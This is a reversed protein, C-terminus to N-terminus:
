VKVNASLSEAIDIIATDKIENSPKDHNYFEELKREIAAYDGRGRAVKEKYEELSRCYYHNLQIKQVSVPAFADEVVEFNENVCTFGKKFRFAHPNIVSKVYRPQVISKVHKNPPFDLDSRMTFSSLQSGQPKDIHGNSGFVMWNIALGGYAEFERLFLPMNGKTAKPLIFEDIDIFAIWRTLAGYTKLCRKYANVQMSQGKIPVVTAYQLLGLERLTDKVPVASGNDYIYFHEVGIKLHYNIWENLYSNEDKIICGISLYYKPKTISSILRNIFSLLM